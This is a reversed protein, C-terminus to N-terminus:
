ELFNILKSRELDDLFENVEILDDEYLHNLKEVLEDKSFNNNKILSWILSASENLEHYTGTEVNLIIEKEDILKSIVSKNISIKM